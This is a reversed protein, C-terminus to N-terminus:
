HWYPKQDKHSYGKLRQRYTEMISEYKAQVAEKLTGAAKMEALTEELKKLDSQANDKYNNSLNMEMKQILGDLQKEASSKFNLLGM